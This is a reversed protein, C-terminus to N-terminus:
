LTPGVQAPNARSLQKCKARPTCGTPWIRASKAQRLEISFAERDGGARFPVQLMEALIKARIKALIEALIKAPRELTDRKGGGTPPRGLGTKVFTELLEAKSAQNSSHKSSKPKCRLNQLTQELFQTLRRDTAM